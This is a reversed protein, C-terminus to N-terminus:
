EWDAHTGEWSPARTQVGANNFLLHVSGFAGITENVLREIDAPRSVDTQLALVPTGIEEMREGTERLLRDEVDALV